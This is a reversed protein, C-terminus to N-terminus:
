SREGMRLETAEGRRGTLWAQAALVLSALVVLGAAPLLLSAPDTRLVTGSIDADSARSNFALATLDVSPRLLSVTALSVLIGGIAALLVQPLMDLVALWQRQRGTMGMTRLRALLAKRQPAHHLLSLLLALVSYGAAGAVAALYVHRAGTQLASGVFRAREQARQTVFLGEHLKGGSQQEALASMGREDMKPGTAFLTTPALLDASEDAHVQAMAAASVIVFDGDSIAPTADRVAVVRVPTAGADAQVTANPKRFEPVLRPSVVAPLADDGGGGDALARAPFPAGLGTASVLAAYKVPDVVILSYRTNGSTTSLGTEVRVSTTDRVGRVKRVREDIDAPLAVVSQIRADAGVMRVAADDRGTQVGALVSGGFSTVALAVLLAVLPLAAASSTRGARALGLHLVTGRLRAAPRALLRLPLPYLRLLVLASGVAVLVPTAATLADAGGDATGRRRLAAMAAIVVVAVALEAVTRRRSPRAEALDEREPLGFRGSLVLARVPLALVAVVAVVAGAAVSMAYRGAPVVGLALATGAAACPLVILANEGLLRLFLATRGSGRVRLQQVETRRRAAALGGAMLLVVGAVTGVGLTAVLVLPSAATRERDFPALLTAPGSQAVTFGPAGTVERAREADPGGSLSSLRDLLTPVDHAALASVDVPHHWYLLAGGPLDLVKASADTSILASFRWYHYEDGQPTTVTVYTPKRLDPEANWFPAGASRPTVLGTVRVTLHGGSNAPLHIASGTRLGITKATDPTVVAEVEGARKATGPLRGSVLRAADALRPQAVLTTQPDLSPSPRALGPDTARTTEANRVGYVAQSTALKLPPRVVRVFADEKAALDREPFPDEDGVPAFPVKVTATVSREALTAKRLTDRLATDEYADVTRPLAAALFATVLVLAALALVGGPAARLRAWIWSGQRPVRSATM